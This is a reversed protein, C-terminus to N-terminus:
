GVGTWTWAEAAAAHKLPNFAAGEKQEAAEAAAEARGGRGKARGGGVQPGRMRGRVGAGGPRAGGRRGRGGSRADVSGCRRGTPDGHKGRGRGGISRADGAQGGVAYVGGGALQCGARGCRAGMGGRGRARGRGHGTRVEAARRAADAAEGSRPMREALKDAERRPQEAREAPRRRDASGLPLMDSLAAPPVARARRPDARGGGGHVARGGVADRGGAQRAPRPRLPHYVIQGGGLGTGAFHYVQCPSRGLLCREVRRCPM